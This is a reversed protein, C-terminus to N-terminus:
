MIENIAKILKEEDPMWFKEMVQSFPVPTDPACVMKIPADLYDFAEEAVMAAIRSLATGNRPEEEMLVLRGTKRISDIIAKKDLPVLTRPDIIELSVGKGQLQAAAALARHVMLGTAVVTIDTGERKVDAKGLPITYEGVPIKDVAKRILMQHYLFITPNDDRIASKLLGKVEYPTSPIVIKLGPIAMLLGHLSKSHQASMSYGAGYYCTITLPLKIKGGFMYRMQLQNILEDGCCGLFSTYMLSAIPRMGTAAAGIAGGLIATESVPTDVVREPGYKDFLGQFETRPAGWVRVDEGIIFVSPDRTMEEDVAETIARLFTIEKMEKGHPLGEEASTGVVEVFVDELAEEPAPLPSEEAFRVADDIERDMEQHIKDAQQETLVAMKVLEHRFRKIPDRKRCEDIEEKTRYAQSDGQYHGYWRCTKCEILTPGEGTRARAVAQSVAEYVAVVDNGDVTTGPIGYASARDSANPINMAYSISTSEAYQNNEIVYVVPLKLISALNVGEHFRSTNAAGDGLFCLAVKDTGKMKASLAAGGAIPIGSGVIGCAGLVGIDLDAIHMSGGKAKCYGTKKGYLEAMMRDTRAGKAILHGHGRHTSTMYDDARLSACAGTAVAEQGSSLHCAGAVKGAAYEKALREEFTRIRCMVRYMDILKQKAITV